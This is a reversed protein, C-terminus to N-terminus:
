FISLLDMELFTNTSYTILINLVIIFFIVAKWYINDVYKGSFYAFSLAQIPYFVYFFRYSYESFFVASYLLNGILSISFLANFVKDSQVIYRIDRFLFYFGTLLLSIAAFYIKVFSSFLGDQLMLYKVLDYALPNISLSLGALFKVLMEGSFLSWFTFFIISVLYSLMKIPYKKLFSSLILGLGMLAYSYHIFVPFLMIIKYKKPKDILFVLLYMGLYSALGQRLGNTMMDLGPLFALFVIFTLSKSKIKLKFCVGVIFLCQVITLFFIFYIPPMFYSFLRNILYFLPEFKFERVGGEIFTLYYSVYNYTDAGSHISRFGLFLSFLLVLFGLSAFDFYQDRHSKILLSPYVLFIACAILLLHILENQWLLV